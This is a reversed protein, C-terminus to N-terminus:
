DLQKASPYRRLDRPTRPDADSSPGQGEEEEEAGEAEEEAEEEGVELDALPGLASGGEDEDDLFPGESKRVGGFKFGGLLEEARPSLPSQGEARGEGQPRPSPEERGPMVGSGSLLEVDDEQSRLHVWEEHARRELTLESNFLETQTFSSLERHAFEGTDKAEMHLVESRTVETEVLEQLRGVEDVTSYATVREQTVTERKRWVARGGQPEARSACRTLHTTSARAGPEEALQVEYTLADPEPEPESTTDSFDIADSAQAPELPPPSPASPRRAPPFAAPSLGLEVLRLLADGQLQEESLQAARLLEDLLAPRELRLLARLSLPALLLARLPRGHQNHLRMLLFKRLRQRGRAADM